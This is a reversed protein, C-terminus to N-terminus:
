APVAPRALASVPEHKPVAPLLYWRLRRGRSAAKLAAAVGADSMRWAQVAGGPDLHEPAYFAIEALSALAATQEGASPDTAYRAPSWSDNLGQGLSRRAARLYAWAGVVAQDPSGTRYSARIAARRRAALVPWGVAVLVVLALALLVLPTRSQEQPSKEPEKTPKPKPKEPKPTPTPTPKDPAPMKVATVVPVGRELDRPGPAFAVWGVKTLEVEPYVLVDTSLVTRQPGKGRVAYGVALRTPFGQSRAMLAFATAFQAQTGSRTILVTNVLSQMDLSSRVADEQESYDATSTAAALAQLKDYPTVSVSMASAAFYQLEVPFDTPLERLTGYEPEDVAQVTQLPALSRMALARYDVVYSKEAGKDDGAILTADKDARAVTDRVNTPRYTAPLWPGPLDETTSFATSGTQAFRPNADPDPIGSPPVQDFTNLSSWTRGDFKSNIAWNVSKPITPGSVTMVDLPNNRQLTQWKTALSVIDDGNLDTDPRFNEKKHPDFPTRLSGIGLAPGILLSALSLILAVAVVTATRLGRGPSSVKEVTAFEAGDEIRNLQRAEPLLYLALVISVTMLAAYPLASSTSGQSLALGIIFVMVPPALSSAPVPTTALMCAVLAGYVVLLIAFTITEAVAPAPVVTGLLLGLGRVLGGLFSSLSIRGLEDPITMAGLVLTALIAAMLGVLAGLGRQVRRGGATGALYGLCCVLVAPVLRVTVPVLGFLRVYVATAALSMLVVAVIRRAVDARTM